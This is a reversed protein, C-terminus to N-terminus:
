KASLAPWAPEYRPLVVTITTRNEQDSVALAVRGNQAEVLKRVSYTEIGSGGQKGHTIFKDFFVERLEDSVVGTYQITIRLPSEDNLTIAVRGNVPAAECAILILNQFISYCFMADGLSRPIEGGAPVDIAVKLREEAFTKQM